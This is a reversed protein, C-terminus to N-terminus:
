ARRAGHCISKGNRMYPRKLRARVDPHGLPLNDNLDIIVLLHLLQTAFFVTIGFTLIIVPLRYRIIFTVYHRLMSPPAM